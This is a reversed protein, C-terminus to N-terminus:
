SLTPKHTNEAGLFESSLIITRLFFFGNTLNKGIVTVKSNQCKM